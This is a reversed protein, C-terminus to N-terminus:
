SGHSGSAVIPKRLVVVDQYAHGNRVIDVVDFFSGYVREIYSKSHFVMANYVHRVPWWFVTKESPLGGAFLAPDIKYDVISDALPMLQDKIWSQKYQEWTDETSVTIYALGGPRLVRRLEALWHAELDDIHTFVSFASVVDFYNPELPLAPFATSNFAKVRRGIFKQIWDIHRVNIDSCWVEAETSTAVHRVVRASACGLEYYRMRNFDIGMQQATERMKAADERGSMWWAAHFEGFYYERDKSAPIPFRDAEIERITVEPPLESSYDSIRGVTEFPSPDDKIILTDLLMNRMSSMTPKIM